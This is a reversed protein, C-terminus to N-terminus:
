RIFQGAFYFKYWWVGGSKFVAMFHEQRETLRLALIARAFPSQLLLPIRAFSAIL